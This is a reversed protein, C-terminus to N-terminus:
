ACGGDDGDYACEISCGDGNRERIVYASLPISDSPSAGEEFRAVAEYARDHECNKWGEEEEKEEEEESKRRRERM